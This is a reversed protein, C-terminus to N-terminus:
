IKNTGDKEENYTDKDHEKVKSYNAFWEIFTLCFVQAIHPEKINKWETSSWTQLIKSVLDLKNEVAVLDGKYKEYYDWVIAVFNDFEETKVKINTDIASDVGRDQLFFGRKLWIIFQYTGIKLLDRERKLNRFRYTYKDVTGFLWNKGHVDFLDDTSERKDNLGYKKAGYTLQNFMLDKFTDFAKM